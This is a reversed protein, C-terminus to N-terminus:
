LYVRLGVRLFELHLGAGPFNGGTELWGSSGRNLGARVDVGGELFGRILSGGYEWGFHVGGGLTSTSRIASGGGDYSGFAARVDVYLAGGDYRLLRMRFGLEAEFGTITRYSGSHGASVYVDGAIGSVGATIGFTQNFLYSFELGAGALNGGPYVPFRLFPCVWLSLGFHGTDIDPPEVAATPQSTPTAEAFLATRAYPRPFDEMAAHLSGSLALILILFRM